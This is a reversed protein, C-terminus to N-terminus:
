FKFKVYGEVRLPLDQFVLVNNSFNDGNHVWNRRDLVNLVDVNVEWRPQRYSVFANLFVQSPIHYENLLNGAQESQWSGGLGGGFGNDFRYSFSSNVVVRSLGPIRYDGRPLKDWQFGLGNGLGGPGQGAAYLNYLSTGGAQSATSNDFRGDIYAANFTANFKTHPQYVLELEAGRM